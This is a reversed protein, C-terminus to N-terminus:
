FIVGPTLTSSLRGLVLLKETLKVSIAKKIPRAVEEFQLRM